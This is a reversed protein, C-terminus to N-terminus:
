SRSRGRGGRRKKRSNEKRRPAPVLHGGGRKRGRGTKGAHPRKKKGTPEQEVDNM